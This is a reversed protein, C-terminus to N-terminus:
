SGQKLVSENTAQSKLQESFRDGLSQRLKSDNTHGELNGPPKTISTRMAYEISEEARMM